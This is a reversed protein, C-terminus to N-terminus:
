MSRNRIAHLFRVLIWPVIYFSLLMADSYPMNINFVHNISFIMWYSILINQFVAIFGMSDFFQFLFIVSAVIPIISRNIIKNFLNDETIQIEYINYIPFHNIIKLEFFFLIIIWLFDCKWDSICLFQPVINNYKQIITDM